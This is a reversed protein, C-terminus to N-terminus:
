ATFLPVVRYAFGKIKSVLGSVDTRSFGDRVVEGSKVHYEEFHWGYPTKAAPGKLGAHVLFMDETWVPTNNAQAKALKAPGADTGAILAFTKGSLASTTRGGMKIIAADISHRQVSSMEGTIVFSNGDFPFKPTLANLVDTAIEPVEAVVTAEPIRGDVLQRVKGYAYSYVGNKFTHTWASGRSDGEFDAFTVFGEAGVALLAAQVDEDGLYDRHEMFDDIFSLPGTFFKVLDVKVGGVWELHSEFESWKGDLLDVLKNAQAKTLSLEKAVVEIEWAM